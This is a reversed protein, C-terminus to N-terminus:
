DFIKNKNSIIIVLTGFSLIGFILYINSISLILSMNTIIMSAVISVIASFSNFGGAIRALYAEPVIRYFYVTLWVGVIGNTIGYFMASFCTILLKIITYEFYQALVFGLYLIVTSLLTISVVKYEKIKTLIFPASLSGIIMSCTFIVSIASYFGVTLKLNEGVFIANYINMAMSFFNISCAIYALVMVKKSKIMTKIGDVYENLFNNKKVETKEHHYKITGIILASILFTVADIIFAFEIGFISLIVGALAVGLANTIQGFSNNLAQGLEYKENNLIKPVVSLGAPIRITEILANLLTIVLLIIPTLSENYYFIVLSGITLFGAVDCLVILRKKNVREVIVGTFSQLLAMPLLSATFIIAIWMPDKTLEYVLWAFAVNDINEGLKSIANASIFRLYNKESWLEKYKKIM